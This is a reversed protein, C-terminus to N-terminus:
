HARRMARVTEVDLGEALDQEPRMLIGARLGMLDAITYLASLHIQNPAADGKKWKRIRDPNVGLLRAFARTSLGSEKQFLALREPFDPPMVWVVPLGHVRRQVGM